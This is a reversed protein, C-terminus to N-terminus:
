VCGAPPFAGEVLRVLATSFTFPDFLPRISTIFQLTAISTLSDLVVTFTPLAVTNTIGFASTYVVYNLEHNRLIEELSSRQRPLSRMRLRVNDLLPFPRLPFERRVIGLPPTPLLGVLDLHSFLRAINKRALQATDDICLTSAAPHYLRYDSLVVRLLYQLIKINYQNGYEVDFAFERTSTYNAKAQMTINFIEPDHVGM